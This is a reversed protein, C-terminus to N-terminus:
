LGGRLFRWALFGLGGVLFLALGGIKAGNEGLVKRWGTASALKDYNRLVATLYQEPNLEFYGNAHQAYVAERLNGKKIANTIAAAGVAGRTGGGLIVHAVDLFGKEPTSWKKYHGVYASGDAHYDVHPFSGADGSGQTAGWNNSGVGEYGTLGFEQSKAITAASPNGWGAGFGGEGAAVTLVYQRIPEAMSPDARKSVEYANQYASAQAPSVNGMTSSGSSSSASASLGLAALTKPGAVGDPTLGKATQFAIIANRTKPGYVGDAVLPPDIGLENLRQQIKLYDTM